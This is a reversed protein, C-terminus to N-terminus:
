DLIDNMSLLKGKIVMLGYFGYKLKSIDDNVKLSEKGTPYLSDYWGSKIKEALEKKTMENIFLDTEGQLMVVLKEDDKSPVKGKVIKNNVYESWDECHECNEAGTQNFICTKCNSMISAGKLM